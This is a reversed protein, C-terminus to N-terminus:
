KKDMSSKYKDKISNRAKQAVTLTLQCMLLPNLTRAFYYKEVYWLLNHAIGTWREEIHRHAMRMCCAPLRTAASSADCFSSPYYYETM